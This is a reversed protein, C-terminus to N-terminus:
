ARREPTARRAIETVLKRRIAEAFQDYSHIVILFAGPGGIVQSRYFEDLDPELTLIPLGNIAVGAGVAEDRAADAPRGANNAGDGSVDIVRRPRWHLARGVLAAMARDIAGSISTGGGFLVRQSRISQPRSAAPPRRPRHGDDLTRGAAAAFARDVADHHGRDGAGPRFRDRGGRGPQSVGRCLGHKQLNFRDMSVSGSADVALVLLLDVATAAAAPRLAGAMLSLLVDRRRLRIAPRM